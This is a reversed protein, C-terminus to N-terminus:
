RGTDTSPFPRQHRPWQLDKRKLNQYGQTKMVVDMEDPDSSNLLEICIDKLAQCNHQDALGLTTAVTELDLNKALIRLLHMIMERYDDGELDTLDPLSDTYIFHLLAKFVEPQMDDITMVMDTGKDRMPGLLRGKLVPSRMFSVVRHALITEGRVSFTVDAGEMDDLLKGVHSAIDPPPVDILDSAALTTPSLTTEKVVTLECRITLRDDRIYGSTVLDEHSMDMKISISQPGTSQGTTNLTQHQESPSIWGRGLKGSLRKVLRVEHWVPVVANMTLLIIHLWSTKSNKTLGDPSFRLMWKYGGITFTGSEFSRGAGIGKKLSLGIIEFTHVGTATETTSRSVTEKVQDESAM